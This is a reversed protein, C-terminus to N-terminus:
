GGFVTRFDDADYGATFQKEPRPRTYHEQLKDHLEEVRPVMYRATTALNRHRLVTQIEPLTLRPDQAMRIGATHRLDHLTWNTGLKDNARQLVRRM